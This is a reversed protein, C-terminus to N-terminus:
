GTDCEVLVIGGFFILSGGVIVSPAVPLFFFFRHQCGTGRNEESTEGLMSPSQRIQSSKLLHSFYVYFRLSCKLYETIM